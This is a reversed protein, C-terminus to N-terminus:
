KDAGFTAQEDLKRVTFISYVFRSDSDMNTILFPENFSTTKRRHKRGSNITMLTSSHIYKGLVSYSPKPDKSVFARILIRLGTPVAM